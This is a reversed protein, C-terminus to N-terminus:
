DIFDRVLGIIQANRRTKECEQRSPTVIYVARRYTAGTTEDLTEASEGILVVYDRFDVTEITEVRKYFQWEDLIAECLYRNLYDKENELNNVNCFTEVANNITDIKLRINDKM